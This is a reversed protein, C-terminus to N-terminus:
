VRPVVTFKLEKDSSTATVVREEDTPYHDVSKILTWDDSDTASAYVDFGTVSNTTVTATYKLNSGERESEVEISAVPAISVSIQVTNASVAAVPMFVLALLAIIKAIKKTNKTNKAM